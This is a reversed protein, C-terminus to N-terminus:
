KGDIIWWSKLRFYKFKLLVSTSIFYLDVHRLVGDVERNLNSRIKPCNKRGLEKKEREKRKRVREQVLMLGYRVNM